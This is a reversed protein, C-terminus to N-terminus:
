YNIAKGIKNKFDTGNQLNTYTLRSDYWKLTIDFKIRYSMSIEHFSSLEFITFNVFIDTGNADVDIPGDEM